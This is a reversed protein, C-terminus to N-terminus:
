LLECIERACTQIPLQSGMVHSKLDFCDSRCQEYKEPNTQLTELSQFIDESTVPPHICEPFVEKKSLINVISFYPMRDVKMIYKAMLFNLLTLEYTVVTPVQHLALELTVTGSKAIAFRCKDMLEYRANFPVVIVGPPVDGVDNKAASIAIQTAPYKKCYMQAAELQKVLNRKIEAPRSGPFIALIPRDPDVSLSHSNDNAILEVIPHGVFVAKLTTDAFYAPEFDFLTLLLDFYKAMEQAREKKWAWVTPAVFQVIKGTYGKKRLHRALKIGFSPQDIIIVMEPQQKLIAHAIKYFYYTLSPLAKLVDSIGMVQFKEMPLICEDVLGRSSPGAVGWFRMTPLLGKLEVLLMGAYLDASTEGTFIFINKQKM